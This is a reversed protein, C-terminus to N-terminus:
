TSLGECVPMRMKKCHHPQWFTFLHERIPVATGYSAKVIKHAEYTVDWRLLYLSCDLSFVLIGVCRSQDHRGQRLRVFCASYAVFTNHVFKVGESWADAHSHTRYQTYTCAVVILTRM